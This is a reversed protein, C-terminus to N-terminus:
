GGAGRSLRGVKTLQIEMLIEHNRGSGGQTRWTNQPRNPFASRSPSGRASVSVPRMRPSHGHGSSPRLPGFDKGGYLHWVISIERLMLRTDPVPFRAPAKLLDTSGIPRAFYGDRITICDSTLKSVMPEGDKPPIGMGPADLICFDDNDTSDSGAESGECPYVDM